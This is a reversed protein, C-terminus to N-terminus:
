HFLKVFYLGACLKVFLANSKGSDNEGIITNAGESFNFNTSSYNRFNVLQMNSLNM